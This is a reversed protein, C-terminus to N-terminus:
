VFSLYPCPHVSLTRLSAPLVSLHRLATSAASMRLGHFTVAFLLSPLSPTFLPFSRVSFLPCTFVSFLNNVYSHTALNVLMLRTPIARLRIIHGYRLMCCVLSSVVLVCPCMCMYLACVFCVCVLVCVQAQLPNTRLYEGEDVEYSYCHTDRLLADEWYQECSARSASSQRSPAVVASGSQGMISAKKAKRKRLASVCLFAFSAVFIAVLLLCTTPSFSSLSSSIADTNSTHPPSTSAPSPAPSAHNKLTTTTLSPM